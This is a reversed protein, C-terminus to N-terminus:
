PQSIHRDWTSIWNEIVGLIHGGINANAINTYPKSMEHIPCTDNGSEIKM